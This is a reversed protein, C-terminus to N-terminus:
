FVSNQLGFGFEGRVVVRNELGQQFSFAVCYYKGKSGNLYDGNM